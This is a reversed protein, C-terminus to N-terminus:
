VITVNEIVVEYNKLNISTSIFAYTSLVMHNYAAIYQENTEDFTVTEMYKVLDKVEQLSENFKEETFLEYCM